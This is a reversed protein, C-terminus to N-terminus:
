VSDLLERPIVVRAWPFRDYESFITPTLRPVPLILRPLSSFFSLVTPLFNLFTTARGYSPPLLNAAKKKAACRLRRYKTSSSEFTSFPAPQMRILRYLPQRIPPSSTVQSSRLSHSLSLRPPPLSFEWARYGKSTSVYVINIRRPPRLLQRRKKYTSCSIAGEPASLRTAGLWKGSFSLFIRQEIVLKDSEVPKRSAGRLANGAFQIERPARIGIKRGALTERARSNARSCRYLSLRSRSQAPELGALSVIYSILRERSKSM